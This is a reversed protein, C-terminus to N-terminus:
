SKLGGGVPPALPTDSIDTTHHVGSEDLNLHRHASSDGTVKRASRQTSGGGEGFPSGGSASSPRRGDEPDDAHLYARLLDYTTLSISLAIPGKIVNLSFGKSLGRWGETLVLHRLM